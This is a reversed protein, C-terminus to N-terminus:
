SWCRPARSRSRCPARAPRDVAGAFPALAVTVFWTASAYLGIEAPNAHLELELYKPLLFFASHALGYSIVAALLAALERGHVPIRTRIRPSCRRPCARGLSRCQLTERASRTRRELGM